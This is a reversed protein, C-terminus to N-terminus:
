KIIGQTILQKHVSDVTEYKFGCRQAFLLDVDTDGIYYVDQPRSNTKVLFDIGARRDPKGADVGIYEVGWMPFDFHEAVKDLWSQRNSTIIGTRAPSDVLRDILWQNPTINDMDLELYKQERIKDRDEELVKYFDFVVQRGRHLNNEIFHGGDKIDYGFANLAALYSRVHEQTSNILTGDLDFLVWKASHYEHRRMRTMEAMYVISDMINDYKPNFSDRSFKLAVLIKHMDTATIEKGLMGSAIQSAREMGEEFSGYQREKEENRHVGISSAEDYITWNM